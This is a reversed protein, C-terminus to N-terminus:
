IRPHTTALSDCTSRERYRVVLFTWLSVADVSKVVPFVIIRDRKVASSSRALNSM